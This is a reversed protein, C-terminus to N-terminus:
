FRSGFAGSNPNELNRTSPSRKLASGPTRLSPTTVAGRSRNSIKQAVEKKEALTLYRGRLNLSLVYEGEYDYFRPEINEEICLQYRNWGDLVMGEYGTIMLQLGNVVLDNRLSSRERAAM